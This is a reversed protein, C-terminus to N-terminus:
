PGPPPNDVKVPGGPVERKVKLNEIQPVYYATAGGSHPGVLYEMPPMDLPELTMVNALEPNLPQQECGVLSVIVILAMFVVIGHFFDRVKDREDLDKQYDNFPQSTM